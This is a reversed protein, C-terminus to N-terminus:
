PPCQIGLSSAPVWKFWKKAHRFVVRPCIVHYNVMKPSDTPKRFIDFWMVVFRIRLIYKCQGRAFRM